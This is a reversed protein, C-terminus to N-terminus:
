IRKKWLENLGYHIGEIPRRDLCGFVSHKTIPSLHGCKYQNDKQLHRDDSTAASRREACVASTPTWARCYAVIHACPAGLRCGCTIPTPLSVNPGKTSKTNPSAISVSWRVPHMGSTAARVSLANATLCWSIRQYKFISLHGKIANTSAKWGCACFSQSLGRIM